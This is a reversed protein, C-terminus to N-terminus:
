VKENRRREIERSMEMIIEELVLLVEINKFKYPLPLRVVGEHWSNVWSLLQAEDIEKIKKIVRKM